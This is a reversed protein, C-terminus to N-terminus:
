AKYSLASLQCGTAVPFAPSQNYGGNIIVQPQLVAFTEALSAAYFSGTEALTRRVDVAIVRWRAPDVRWMRLSVMGKADDSYTAQRSSLGPQMETWGAANTPLVGTFCMLWAMLISLRAKTV